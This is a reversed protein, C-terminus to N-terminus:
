SLLKKIGDKVAKVSDLAMTMTVAIKTLQKNDVKKEFEVLKTEVEVSVNDVETSKSEPQYQPVDDVGKSRYEAQNHLLGLVQQYINALPPYSMAINHLQDVDTPIKVQNLKTQVDEPLSLDIQSLSFVLAKLESIQTPTM